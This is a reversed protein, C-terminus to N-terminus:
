VKIEIPISTVGTEFEGNISISEISRIIENDTVLTTLFLDLQARKEWGNELKESINRVETRRSLELNAAQLTEITSNRILGIHFKHADTKAGERYFNISLMIERLGTITNNIDLDETRDELESVDWGLQKIYNTNVSAYNGSPRPFDEEAPIAYEQVGVISNILGRVLKNVAEEVYSSM